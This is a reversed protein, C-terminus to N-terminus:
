STCQVELTAAIKFISACQALDTAMLEARWRMVEAIDSEGANQLQDARRLIGALIDLHKTPGPNLPL